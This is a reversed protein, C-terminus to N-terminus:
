TILEDDIVADVNRKLVEGIPTAMTLYGTYPWVSHRKADRSHANRDKQSVKPLRM